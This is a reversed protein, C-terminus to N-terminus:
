LNQINLLEAVTKLNAPEESLRQIITMVVELEATNFANDLQQLLPIYRLHEPKLDGGSKKQFSAETEQSNNISQQKEATDQAIVGALADGGPLKTLFQPNRRIVGELAVSALEAVNINGLNFKNKQQESLQVELTDAYEEAEELQEKAKQLEERLRSMEYERDRTALKEQIIGDLDGLGNFGNLGKDQKGHQVLFCYKNNRPSHASDYIVIKVKETNEDMYQEYHDFEKVESTKPVVKFSDVHIEYFKPQGKESMAELFSKLKEVKDSDYRETTIAM